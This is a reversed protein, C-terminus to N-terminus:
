ASSRALADVLRRLGLETKADEIEGSRCAELARSLSLSIVRGGRELASGDLGPEGRRSPVVEVRVFYLKEALVGPCPFSPPGLARFGDVAIEFGLEESLERSAALRVGEPGSEDPEILGAPLEWLAGGSREALSARDPPRFRAPPRLSSRLYVHPEGDVLFHAAIAVADVARRSVEDYEFPDSRTGDPYRAVLQRRLLRLFGDDAPPSRDGVQTLTVDPL